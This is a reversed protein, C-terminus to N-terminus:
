SCPPLAQQQDVRVYVAPVWAGNDLRYWTTSTPDPGRYDPGVQIPRGHSAQCVVTLSEGLPYQGAHIHSNPGTYAYLTTSASGGGGGDDTWAVEAMFGRATSTSGAPAASPSSPTRGVTTAILGSALGIIAIILYVTLGGVVQHNLLNWVKCLM